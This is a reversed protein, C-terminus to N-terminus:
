EFALQVNAQLLVVVPRQLLVIEYAQLNLLQLLPLYM